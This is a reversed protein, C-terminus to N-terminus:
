VGGSNCEYTLGSNRSEARCEEGRDWLSEVILQDCQTQTWGNFQSCFQSDM